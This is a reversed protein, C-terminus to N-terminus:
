YYTGRLKEFEDRIWFSRLEQPTQPNPNAPGGGGVFAFGGGPALADLTEKVVARVEEETVELHPLFQRGDFGGCILLRNGFKKKVAVLDNSTQAPDWGNFGMDVLDDLYDEFKGCNHHVAIMGRDKFFGIYRRWVPEFIEEFMEVSLFPAREHAIDDALFAYDPKYYKLFDDAFSLYFDCLYEAM